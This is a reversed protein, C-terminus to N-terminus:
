STGPYYAAAYKEFFFFRNIVNTGAPIIGNEAIQNEASAHFTEDFAM